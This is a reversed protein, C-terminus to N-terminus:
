DAPVSNMTADGTVTHRQSPVVQDNVCTDVVITKMRKASVLSSERGGEVDDDLFNQDSVETNTSLSDRQRLHCHYMPFQKSTTALGCPSAKKGRSPVAKRTSSGNEQPAPLVVTEDRCVSRFHQIWPNALLVHSGDAKVMQKRAREFNIKQWFGGRLVKFQGSSNRTKCLMQLSPKSDSPNEKQSHWGLLGFSNYLQDVFSAEMSKLYLSHKEDTWEMSMPETVPSDLSSTEEQDVSDTSDGGTLGSTQRTRFSEM